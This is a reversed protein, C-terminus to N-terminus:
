ETIFLEKFKKAINPSPSLLNWKYFPIELIVSNIGLIQERDNITVLFPGGSMGLQTDCDMRYGLFISKWVSCAEHVYAEDEKDYPYGWFDGQLKSERFYESFIIPFTHVTKVKDELRILVWDDIVPLRGGVSIIKGKIPQNRDNKISELYFYWNEVAPNTLIPWYKLTCHAATLVLDPSVLSATCSGSLKRNSYPSIEGLWAPRKAGGPARDDKGNIGHQDIGLWCILSVNVITVFSTLTWKKNLKV